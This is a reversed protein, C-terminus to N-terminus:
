RAGSSSVPAAELLLMSGQKPVIRNPAAPIKEDARHHYCIVTRADIRGKQAEVKGILWPSVFAYDLNKMALLQDISDTDGTFYLRLGHWTVLYSAHDIDGHPTPFAEV